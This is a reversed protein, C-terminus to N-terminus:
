GLQSLRFSSPSILFQQNNEEGVRREYRKLAGPSIAEQMDNLFLGQWALSTYWMNVFPTDSKAIKFAMHSPDNGQAIASVLGAVDDVTGFTPGLLSSTFSHGFRDYQGWLFDGFIGLGM